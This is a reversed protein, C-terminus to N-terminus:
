PIEVEPEALLAEVEQPSLAAVRAVVAEEVLKAMRDVTFTEFLAAVHETAISLGFRENASALLGTALISDGGLAFFSDHVGVREVRLTAAVLECLVREVASRPAVYSETSAAQVQRVAFAPPAVDHFITCDAALPLLELLNRLPFPLVIWSAGDTATRFAADLNSAVDGDTHYRLGVSSCAAAHEEDCVTPGHCLSAAPLGLAARRQVIADAMAAVSAEEVSAPAGLVGVALSLCAFFSLGPADGLAFDIAAWDELRRDLPAESSPSVTLVVGDLPAGSEPRARRPPVVHVDIGGDRCREVFRDVASSPHSTVLRLHRAGRELYRGALRLGLPEDDLGIAYRGDPRVPPTPASASWAADVLRAVYTSGGRVAVEREELKETLHDAVAPVDRGDDRPDIDVLFTPHQPQDYTLARGGGWLAAQAPLIPEDLSVRQAGRTLVVLSGLAREAVLTALARMMACAAAASSAAALDLTAFLVVGRVDKPDAVNALAAEVARHALAPDSPADVVHCRVSSAQLQDVVKRGFTGRDLLVIWSRDDRAARTEAGAAVNWEVRYISTEFASSTARGASKKPNASGAPAGSASASENWIAELALSGSLLAARTASRQIKGSTTKLSTGRRILAVVGAHLGHDESLSRRVNAIIRKADLPSVSEILEAVIAIAAGEGDPVEVAAVGGPRISADSAAASRELDQPFHNEGRVIIVDKLRGAIFLDGEYFFGLDGTRLYPQADGELRAGFTEETQTPRSFYGSGVSPSAIWIEGVIGADLPRRASVDAIRITHDGPPVGLTPLRTADVGASPAVARGRLLAARDFSRGQRDMARGSGAVFATHEAMGYHHILADPDLGSPGFREAFREMTECRAPEAGNMMVEVTRLDLDRANEANARRVCLDYAFNPAATHTGRFRTLARLWRMPDEAFRAASLHVFSCGVALSGIFMSVLGLDHFLPVWSVVVSERRTSFFSPGSFVRANAELNAHTIMVGRPELTSGSTYQLLALDDSAPHHERWRDAADTPVRDSEIRELEALGPDALGAADVLAFRACADRAIGRLRAEARRTQSFAATPTPVAVAGAVLTGLISEMYGLGPAQVILVREGAAGRDQLIAGIAAARRVLAPYTLDVHEREGDTIFSVRSSVGEGAHRRAVDVISDFTAM